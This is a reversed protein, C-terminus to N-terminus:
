IPYKELFVDILTYKLTNVEPFVVIGIPKDIALMYQEYLIKIDMNKASILDKIM